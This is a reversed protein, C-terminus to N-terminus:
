QANSLEREWREPFLKPFFRVTEAISKLYSAGDTHGTGAQIDLLYLGKEDSEERSINGNELFKSVFNLIGEKDPYREPNDEREEKKIIPPEEFM